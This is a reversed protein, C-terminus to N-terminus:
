RNEPFTIEPFICVRKAGYIKLRSYLTGIEAIDLLHGAGIVQAIRGGRASYISLLAEEMDEDRWKQQTNDLSRLDIPSLRNTDVVKQYATLGPDSFRCAEVRQVSFPPPNFRVIDEQTTNRLCPELLEKCVKKADVIHDISYVPINKKSAYEIACRAESSMHYYNNFDSFFQRASNTLHKTVPNIEELLEFLEENTLRADPDHELTITTPSLADLTCELYEKTKPHNHFTGVLTIM